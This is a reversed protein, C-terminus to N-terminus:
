RRTAPLQEHSQTGHISRHGICGFPAKLPRREASRSRCDDANLTASSTGALACNQLGTRRDNGAAVTAAPPKLGETPKRRDVAASDLAAQLSVRRAGGGAAACPRDPQRWWVITTTPSLLPPSARRHGRSAEGLRGLHRDHALMAGDRPQDAVVVRRSTSHGCTM